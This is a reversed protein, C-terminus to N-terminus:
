FENRVESGTDGVVTGGQIEIVRRPFRKVLDHEHTVMLVTTGRRNIETLLEVIEYSMAPDVNGTPEDAIIMSPNNVLARALGVRQQEGGSLEAPHNDMKKELGVLGLVYPVRKRIERDSAGVIHMAFAVNDYVTMKDILRFDQFVIGMTRRLYPVDRKRVTSLKRGNVVIEGSNPVEERMILKLFTSKGAGSSGVIFVFEGKAISLSLNRLAETGNNYVKSVNKFEIM